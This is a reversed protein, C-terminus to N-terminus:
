KVTFRTTTTESPEDASNVATASITYEVGHNGLITGISLPATEWNGNRDTSVTTELATGQLAVVGLIRNRYDIKVRVHGNPLAKGRVVLPSSPPQNPGPSVIIPADPRGQQLRLTGRSAQEFKQGDPLMLRYIIQKGAADDGRRLTYDGVYHGPKDEHLPVDHINGANFRAQGGPSGNMELHLLDGPALDRAAPDGVSLIGRDTRATEAFKWHAEARNGAYDSLRLLVDQPGESLRMEPRYTIFSRTVVADGTVDRGNVVLRVSKPDLGSGEDYFAASIYPRPDGVIANLDPTTDRIRPPISDVSISEGAQILPAMRRGVKLSGIVAADKLQTGKDGSVLWDGVYRGPADEHMPVEEVLGPIRFTAQGGPTGELRVHLPEGARLWKGGSHTFSNITPAPGRDAPDGRHDDRHDDRHDPKPAPRDEPRVPRVSANLADKTLIRVTRTASDWAVDAGLSEGIFRLPVFTHDHIVQAPIDLTVNNGNVVATRSGITLQIDMKPTSAIVTQTQNNFTVLAGLKELVGRVPVLTRGDIQQPGIDQFQVAEGNVTVGIGQARVGMLNGSLLLLGLSGYATWAM